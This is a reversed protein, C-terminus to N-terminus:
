WTFNSWQGNAVKEKLIDIFVSFEIIRKDSVTGTFLPSAYIITGSPDIMILSKLTTAGKYNSYCQSQKKLSSPRQIYFETNCDISGIINPFKERIATSAKNVLVNRNPWIDLSGLRLYM